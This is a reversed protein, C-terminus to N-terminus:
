RLFFRESERDYYKLISYTTESGTRLLKASASKARWKSLFAGDGQFPLEPISWQTHQWAVNLLFIFFSPPAPESAKMPESHGYHVSLPLGWWVFMEKLDKGMLFIKYKGPLVQSQGPLTWLWRLDPHGWFAKFTGQQWYSIDKYLVLAEVSCTKTTCWTSSSRGWIITFLTFRPGWLHEATYAQSTGKSAYGENNCM